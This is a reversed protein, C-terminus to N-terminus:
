VIGKTVQLHDVKLTNALNEIYEKCHENEPFLTFMLVTEVKGIINKLFEVAKDFSNERYNNHYEKDGDISVGVRDAFLHIRDNKITGNTTIGVKKGFSRIKNCIEELNKVLLPEGGTIYIWEEETDKILELCTEIDPEDRSDKLPCYKCSLNCKYTIPFLIPDM